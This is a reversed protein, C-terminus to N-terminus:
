FSNQKLWRLIYMNATVFFIIIQKRQCHFSFIM